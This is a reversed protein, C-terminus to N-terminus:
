QKNAGFVGHLNQSKDHFAGALNQAKPGYFKGEAYGTKNATGQFTNAKITADISVAKKTPMSMVGPAWNNLTGTLKKNTFDVQFESRGTYAGFSLPKREKNLQTIQDNFNVMDLAIANGLYTATGATPMDTTPQGTYFLGYMEKFYKGTDDLLSIDKLGYRAYATGRTGKTQGYIRKSIGANNTVSLTFFDDDKAVVDPNSDTDAAYGKQYAAEDNSDGVWAVIEPNEADFNLYFMEGQNIIMGDPPNQNAPIYWAVHSRQLTFPKENNVPENVSISDGGGGGCASLAFASILTIALLKTKM